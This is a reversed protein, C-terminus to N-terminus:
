DGAGSHRLMRRLIDEWEEESVNSFKEEAM